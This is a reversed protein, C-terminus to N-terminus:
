KPEANKLEVKELEIELQELEMLVPNLAFISLVAKQDKTSIGWDILQFKSARACREAVRQLYHRPFVKSKFQRRVKIAELDFVELRRESERRKSCCECNCKGAEV